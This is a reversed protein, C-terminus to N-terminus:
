LKIIDLVVHVMKEFEQVDLYEFRGHHNYSGTGLNPTVLGMKSFTAGDTGGRILLSRPEIGNKKLAAKAVEVPKPFKDVYPKMNEYQEKIELQLEAKPYKEQLEKVSKNILEDRKNLLDRDFERLIMEMEVYESSGEISTIHWYGEDENADFPTEDKPLKDIFENLVLLANILANKGEGPHVSVGHISLKVAQANFNIYDVCDIEGGDVTFAYDADMKKLDFHKAGEGIEEDVTFAISLNSHKVEPHEHLYALASMIIAIGAKDDAGLLTDGSTVVLDHGIHNKLSPFQKPSLTYQENLKIDGGDYKEIIRPTVDKGTVELATDIHSNLGIKDGEGKLHGYVIGYEDMYADDVGLEKLEEVLLRSLNKQKESSPTTGTTDDSQTDIKAYRIFRDINKM